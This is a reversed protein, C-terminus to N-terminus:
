RLRLRAATPLHDSGVDEELWADVVKWYTNALVHDIRVRIWGNLRTGGFGSGAVSFSNQWEGWAKRYSRSEVPTNFDGVVIHPGLFGEAWLSSQRLEIDRLISKERVKPVGEQVQGTRILEFGDRPTDLHLNTMLFSSGGLDLEYTIVKGAGGAAELAERDMERAGLIEFRSALCLGNRADVHWGPIQGLGESLQRGCEQFAAVDPQWDALLNAPSWLLTEGGRANFSVITFDDGSGPGAFLSRWGTHFGMVPGVLLVGSLLLPTLLARDKIAALPLLGILPLILIWRPGFLLVTAPWWRDGLGWVM